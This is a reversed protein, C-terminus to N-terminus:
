FFQMFGNTSYLDYYKSLSRPYIQNGIASATGYFFGTASTGLFIGQIYMYCFMYVASTGQSLLLFNKDFDSLVQTTKQLPPNFPKSANYGLFNGPQNFKNRNGFRSEFQAQTISPIYVSKPSPVTSVTTNAKLTTNTAPVATTTTNAPKTTNTTTTTTTPKPTTTTTTAPKSM